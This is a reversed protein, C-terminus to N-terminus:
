RRSTQSKTRPRRHFIGRCDVSRRNRSRTSRFLRGELTTLSTPSLERVQEHWNGGNIGPRVNAKNLRVQSILPSIQLQAPPFALRNLRHMEALSCFRGRRPDATRSGSSTSRSTAPAGAPRARQLPFLSPKHSRTQPCLSRAVTLVSGHRCVACVRERGNGRGQVSSGPTFRSGEGGARRGSVTWPPGRGPSLPPPTLTRDPPHPASRGPIKITTPFM